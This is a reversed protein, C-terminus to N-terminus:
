MIQSLITFLQDDDLHLDDIDNLDQDFAASLEEDSNLAHHRATKMSREAAVCPSCGMLVFGQCGRCLCMLTDGLEIFPKTNGNLSEAKRGLGLRSPGPIGHCRLKVPLNQRHMNLLKRMAMFTDFAQEFLMSEAENISSSDDGNQTVAGNKTYIGNLLHCLMITANSAMHYLPGPAHLLLPHQIIINCAMILNQIQSETFGGENEDGGGNRESENGDNSPSPSTASNPQGHQQQNDGEQSNELFASLAHVMMSLGHRKAKVGAIASHQHLLTKASIVINRSCLENENAMVATTTPTQGSGSGNGSMNMAKAMEDFSANAQDCCTRIACAFADLTRSILNAENNLFVSPPGQMWMQNIPDAAVSSPDTSCGYKAKVEEVTNPGGVASSCSNNVEPQINNIDPLAEESANHMM